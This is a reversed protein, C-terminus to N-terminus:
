KSYGHNKVEFQDIILLLVIAKQNFQIDQQM